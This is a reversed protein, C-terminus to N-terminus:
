TAFTATRTSRTVSSRPSSASSITARRGGDDSGAFMWNKKGTVVYRLAREAVNNDIALDGDEVYRTLATWLALSYQMAQAIPSKPLLKRSEIDLWAKFADLVPRAEAVRVLRREEAGLLKGKEEVDYLKKVFAIATLARVRDSGQADFYKRRAHAWCAVAVIHGKEFIADFGPYADAQLHRGKFGRLFEIPGTVRWGM